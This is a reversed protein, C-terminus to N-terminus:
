RTGGRFFCCGTIVGCCWYCYDCCISIKLEASFMKYFSHRQTREALLNFVAIIGSQLQCIFTEYTPPPRKEPSASELTMLSSEREQSRHRIGWGGHGMVCSMKSHPM